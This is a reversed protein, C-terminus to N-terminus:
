SQCYARIKIRMTAFYKVIIMLDPLCKSHLIIFHHFLALFFFMFGTKGISGHQWCVYFSKEDNWCVRKHIQPAEQQHLELCENWSSKILSEVAMKRIRFRIRAHECYLINGQGHSVDVVARAVPFYLPVAFFGQYIIPWYSTTWSLRMFDPSYFSNNHINFM